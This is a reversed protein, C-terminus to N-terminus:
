SGGIKYRRNCIHSDRTELGIGIAHEFILISFVQVQSPLFREGIRILAYAPHISATPSMRSLESLVICLESAARTIAQRM